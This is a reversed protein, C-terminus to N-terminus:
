GSVSAAPQGNRWLQVGADKDAYLRLLLETGALQSSGPDQDEAGFPVVLYTQGRELLLPDILAGRRWTWAASRLLTTPEPILRHESREIAGSVNTFHNIDSTKFVRVSIVGLNSREQQLVLACQILADGTAKEQRNASASACTSETNMDTSVTITWVHTSSLFGDEEVYHGHKNDMKEVWRDIAVAMRWSSPMMKCGDVLSWIRCFDEIAMWFVGDDHFTYGLKQQAGPNEAWEKSRDSWAGQWGTHGRAM